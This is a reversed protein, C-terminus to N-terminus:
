VLALAMAAALSAEDRVPAVPVKITADVALDSYDDGSSRCEFRGVPASFKETLLKELAREKYESVPSLPQYPSATVRSSTRGLLTQTLSPASGAVAIGHIVDFSRLVDRRQSCLYPDPLFSLTSVPVSGSRPVVMVPGSPPPLRCTLYDLPTVGLPVPATGPRPVLQLSKQPMGNTVPRTTLTSCLAALDEEVSPAHLGGLEANPPLHFPGPSVRRSQPSAGEKTGGNNGGVRLSGGPSDSYCVVSTVEQTQRSAESVKKLSGPPSKPKAPPSTAPSTKHPNILLFRQLEQGLARQGALDQEEASAGLRPNSALRVIGCYRLCRPSEM